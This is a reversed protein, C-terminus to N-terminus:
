RAAVAATLRLSAYIDGPIVETSGNGVGFGYNTPATGPAGSVAGSFVSNTLINTRAEERLLGLCKGTMPDYDIRPVNAAVTRRKGDRGICTATSARVCQIRPDVRGANAFDLLLSPRISPLDAIVTM